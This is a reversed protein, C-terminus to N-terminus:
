ADVLRRVADEVSKSEMISTGVLAADCHDLVYDLEEASSIGSASIKLGEISEALVRSRGIDVELTDKDRNNIVFIQGGADRARSIDEESHIEVLPEMGFYRCREILNNLKKFSFFSSILLLSDAGYYYSEEVQTPHFIFDKRLVPLSTAGKVRPLYDLSGSFYKKETLVSLGCAGGREMARALGEPPEFNRVRGRPSSFKVEGIVARPRERIARSFSLPERGRRVERTFPTFGEKREELIRDFM